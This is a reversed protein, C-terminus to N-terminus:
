EGMYVVTYCLYIQCCFFIDTFILFIHFFLCILLFYESYNPIIEMLRPLADYTAIIKKFKTENILYNRIQSKNVKSTVGFYGQASKSEVLNCTPCLIISNRKSELEVTTGGCGTIGKNILKHSPIFDLFDSLFKTKAPIKIVNERM